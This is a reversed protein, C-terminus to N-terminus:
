IGDLYRVGLPRRIELGGTRFVGPIDFIMPGNQWVDGFRHPMPLHFKMVDMDRRYAIARNTGGTGATELGRITTIMLPQGTTYTYINNRTLWEILGMNSGSIFRASLAALIAMPLALTNPMETGLTSIWGGAILNAVDRAVQAETKSAFTTANGTGDAPAVASPVSADNILGTWNKASDGRLALDDLMEEAARRASNAKEPTLNTGPVMMAQGIEESTYRYGIGAMEVPHELKDRTVDALRMDTSMHNFWAARGVRDLSFWTVSKAWENASTDVPVLRPYQIEPYVKRTVGPEISSVQSIVFGLAAADMTYYSPRKAM